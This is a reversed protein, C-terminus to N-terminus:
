PMASPSWPTPSGARGRDWSWSRPGAPVVADVIEAEGDAPLRRYLEVSCGDQTHAGPGTGTFRIASGM